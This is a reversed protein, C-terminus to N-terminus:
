RDSGFTEGVQVARDLEEVLTGDADYRVASDPTRNLVFGTVRGFATGNEPLNALVHALRGEPKVTDPLDIRRRGGAGMGSMVSGPRNRETILVAHPRFSARYAAEEARAQTDREAEIVAEVEALPLELAEALRGSLHRATRLEGAEVERLRRRGKELNAYGMRRVLENRSVDLRSLGDRVLNLLPTEPM